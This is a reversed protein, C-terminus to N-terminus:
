RRYEVKAALRAAPHEVLRYFVLGAAISAAISAAFQAAPLISSRPLPLLPLWGIVRFGVPGHVLYISYSRHGIYGLARTAVCDPAQLGRGLALLLLSSALAKAALVAHGGAIMFAPFLVLGILGFPLLGTWGRARWYTLAGLAFAWAWIPLQWRLDPCAAAAGASSVLSFYLACEIIKRTLHESEAPALRLVCRRVTWYVLIWGLYSQFLPAMSWLTFFPFYKGVFVDQAFLMAAVVEGITPIPNSRGLFANAAWASLFLSAVAVWYPLALRLFRRQVHRPVSLYGAEPPRFTHALFYGALVFFSEVGLRGYALGFEVCRGPAGGSKPDAFISHFHMIIVGLCVLGRLLDISGRHAALHDSQVIRRASPGGRHETGPEVDITM